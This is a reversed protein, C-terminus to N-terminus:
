EPRDTQWIRIIQLKEWGGHNGSSGVTKVKWGNRWEGIRRKVLDPENQACLLVYAVGTRDSLVNPLEALLRNTTEMGDTGGAYSLSLMHSNFDFLSKADTDAGRKGGSSSSTSTLTPVSETPVYPPNFILIDVTRWRVSNTLDAVIPDLFCTRAIRRSPQPSQQDQTVKRDEPTALSVTHKTARCAQENVDTGLTMLHARGCIEQACATLFALVIGSGTGVELALLAGPENPKTSKSSPRGGTPINSYPKATGSGFRDKLFTSESVSSLTDLFLYSDEAPEYINEFSVHTTDPTPLM